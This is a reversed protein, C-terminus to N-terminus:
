FADIKKSQALHFCEFQASERHLALYLFSKLVPIINILSRKYSQTPPAIAEVFGM